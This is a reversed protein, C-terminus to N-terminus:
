MAITNYVSDNWQGWVLANLLGPESVLMDKHSPSIWGYKATWPNLASVVQGRQSHSHNFFMRGGWLASLVTWPLLPYPSLHPVTFWPLSDELPGMCSGPPNTPLLRFPVNLLFVWILQFRSPCIKPALSVLASTTVLFLFSKPCQPRLCIHSKLSVLPLRVRHLSHFRAESVSFGSGWQHPCKIPLRSQQGLM